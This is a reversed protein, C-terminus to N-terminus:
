SPGETKEVHEAWASWGTPEDVQVIVSQLVGERIYLHNRKVEAVPGLREKDELHLLDGKAPLMALRGKWLCMPAVRPNRPQVIVTCEIM